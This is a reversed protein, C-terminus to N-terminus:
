RRGGGRGGFPSSTAGATPTAPAITQVVIREGPKLGSTIETADDGEIGTEVARRQTKVGVLTDPDAPLGSTPDAPAPTGGKAILVYSGNDDSQVAGGPIAVVNDKQSM